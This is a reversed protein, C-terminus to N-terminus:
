RLRIALFFVLLAILDPVLQDVAQTPTLFLRGLWAAVCTGFIAAMVTIMQLLLRAIPTADQFKNRFGQSLLGSEFDTRPPFVVESLEGGAVANETKRAFLGGDM